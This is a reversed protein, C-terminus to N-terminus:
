TVSTANGFSDRRARAQSHHRIIKIRRPGRILRCPRAHLSALRHIQRMHGAKAKTPQRYEGCRVLETVVVTPALDQLM